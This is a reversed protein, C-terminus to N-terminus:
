SGAPAEPDLTIPGGDTWTPRSRVDFSYWVLGRPHAAGDLFGLVGHPGRPRAFEVGIAFHSADVVRYSLSPAQECPSVGGLSRPLLGTEKYATYIRGAAARSMRERELDSKELAPDERHAWGAAGLGGLVVFLGLMSLAPAWRDIAQTESM